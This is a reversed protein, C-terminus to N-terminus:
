KTFGFMPDILNSNQGSCSAIVTAQDYRSYDPLVLGLAGFSKDIHNVLSHPFVVSYVPAGSSPPATKLGQRYIFYRYGLNYGPSTIYSFAVCPYHHLRSDQSVFEVLAQKQVYGSANVPFTFFMNLNYVLLVTILASIFYKPFFEALSVAALIIWIINIGNLYYESLNIPSLTFFLIYLGMWLVFITGTYRPIKKTILLLLFFISLTLPIFKESFNFEPVFFIRTANKVAYAVVHSIKDSFAPQNSMSGVSVSTMTSFLSKTQIFGHRFEFIFLPLSLFLLILLPPLFDRWIFVKRNIVAGIVVLPLLLVLALNIHWILGLLFAALLLGSKKGLFILNVAYFFWISWLMVPTTPVVERETQSILFSGAYLLSAIGASRHSYLRAVVFYLSVIAALGIILSYGL